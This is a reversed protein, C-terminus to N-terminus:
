QSVSVRLFLHDVPESSTATVGVEGPGGGVNPISVTPGDPPGDVGDGAYWNELDMSWEYGGAVDSLPPNALPHVFTTITGDTAVQRVAGSNRSGPDTGFFGELGNSLGDGDPDDDFGTMGGVEFGGIWTAFDESEPVPLLFDSAPDFAASGTQFAIEDLTGDVGRGEYGARGFYGFSITTPDPTTFHGGALSGFPVGNIYGTLTSSSADWAYALHVKVGSPPLATLQQHGSSGDWYFMQLVDDNDDTRLRLNCDGQVDLVVPAYGTGTSQYTLLAEVVWNQTTLDGFFSGDIDFGDSGNENGANIVAVGGDVVPAGSAQFTGSLDIEDPGLTYETGSLTGDFHILLQTELSEASPTTGSAVNSFDSDGAANSAFIRYDYSTDPTLGSLKDTFFSSESPATGVTTWTGAGAPSRQITFGTETEFIDTWILDVEYPSYPSVILDDVALGTLASAFSQAPESWAELDPEPAPNVAHFRYFYVTDPMLGTMSGTVTGVPQAGLANANAWAGEGQDVIDWYLTVEAPSTILSVSAEATTGTASVLTSGTLSPQEPGAPEVGTVDTWTEGFRIADLEGSGQGNMWMLLRTAVMSTDVAYSASWTVAALDGPIVSNEAFRKIEILDEGSAHSTIRGVLLGYGNVTNKGELARIGYVGSETSGDLTGHAIYASNGAGLDSLGVMSANNWSFGAGVFEDAPGGGTALGIGMATDGPNNLRVSFYIVQDAGFDIPTALPRTAYINTDWSNTNNWVGGPLGDDPPLGPLTAGVVNFNNATFIGTNQNVAWTDTLGVSSTTDGAGDLSADGASIDDFLEQVLLSGHLAPTM